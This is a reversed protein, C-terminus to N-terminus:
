LFVDMGGGLLFRRRANRFSFVERAVGASDSFRDRPM